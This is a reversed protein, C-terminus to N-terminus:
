RDRDYKFLWMHANVRAAVSETDRNKCLKTISYIIKGVNNGVQKIANDRCTHSM